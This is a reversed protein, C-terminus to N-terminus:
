RLLLFTEFLKQTEPNTYAFKSRVEILYDLTDQFFTELSLIVFVEPFLDHRYLLSVKVLDSIHKSFEIQQERSISPADEIYFLIPNLERM